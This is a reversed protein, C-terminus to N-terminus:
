YQHFQVHLVTMLCTLFTAKACRLLEPANSLIRGKVKLQLLSLLWPLSPLEHKAWETM